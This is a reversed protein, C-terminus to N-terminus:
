CAPASSGCNWGIQTCTGSTVTCSSYQYSGSGDLVGNTCTPSQSPCSTGSETNYFTASNGYEVDTGDLSCNAPDLLSCSSYNYSGNFVGNTGTRSENSCSNGSPNFM